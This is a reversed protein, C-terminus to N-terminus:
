GRGCTCKEGCGIRCGVKDASSSNSAWIASAMRSDCSSAEAKGGLSRTCLAAMLWKTPCRAASSPASCGKRRQEESSDRSTMRSTGGLWLIKEGAALAAKRRKWRRCPTSIRKELAGGNLYTPLFPPLEGVQIYAGGCRGATATQRWKRRVPRQSVLPQASAWLFGGHGKKPWSLFGQLNPSLHSSSWLALSDTTMEPSDGSTVSAMWASRSVRRLGRSNKSSIPAAWSCIMWTNTSLELM